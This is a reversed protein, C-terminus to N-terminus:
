RRRRRKKGNNYIGYYAIGLIMVATGIIAFALTTGSGGTAPYTPKRNVVKITTIENDAADGTASTNAILYGNSNLKSLDRESLNEIYDIHTENEDAIDFKAEAKDFTGWSELSGKTVDKNDKVLNISAYDIVPSNDDETETKDSLSYVVVDDFNESINYKPAYGNFYLANEGSTILIMNRKINRDDDVMDMVSDLGHDVHPWKYGQPDKYTEIKVNNLSPDSAKVLSYVQNGEKANNSNYTVVAIRANDGYKDIISQRFTQFENNFKDVGEKNFDDKEIVFFFDAKQSTTNAEAAYATAIVSELGLGNNATSNDIPKITVKGAQDVDVSWTNGTVMYQSVSETEVLTYTTDPDLNEFIIQGNADSKKTDFVSGDANRLEFTVGELASGDEKTKLLRFKAKATKSNGIYPQSIVKDKNNEDREVKSVVGDEDVTFKAVAKTPLNYGETAETEWVEYKGPDLGTWKLKGGDKSEQDSGQVKEYKSTTEDLKRLEFKAGDIKNISEDTNNTVQSGDKPADEEPLAEIKTYEVQNKSNPVTVEVPM